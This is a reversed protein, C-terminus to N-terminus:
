IKYTKLLYTEAHVCVEQWKIRCSWLTSILPKFLVRCPSVLVRGPRKCLVRCVTSGETCPLHESVDALHVLGSLATRVWLPTWCLGRKFEVDYPVTSYAVSAIM